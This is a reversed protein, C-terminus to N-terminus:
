LRGETQRKRGVIFHGHSVQQAVHISVEAERLLDRFADGGVELQM